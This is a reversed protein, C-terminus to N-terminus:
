ARAPHSPCDRRQEDVRVRLWLQNPSYPLGGGNTGIQLAPDILFIRAQYRANTTVLM